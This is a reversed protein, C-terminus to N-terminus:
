PPCYMECTDILAPWVTVSGHVDTPRRGDGDESVNFGGLTVPACTVSELLLAAALTGALTVTAAPLVLAVNAILVLGTAADVTAVM